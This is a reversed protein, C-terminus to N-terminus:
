VKGNDLEFVLVEDREDTVECAANFSPKRGRLELRGQGIIKGSVPYAKTGCRRSFTTAEGSWVDGSRTGKFLVSGAEIGLGSLESRPRDYHLAVKDGTTQLRMVSGNHKLSAGGDFTAPAVASPKGRAVASSTSSTDTKAQKVDGSQTSEREKKQADARDSDQQRKREADAQAQDRRQRDTAAQQDEKLMQAQLAKAQEDRQRQAALEAKAQEDKQRQAALEAKAREDKQRQAALEANAQEDKRRQAELAAQAQQEKVRQAEREKQLAIQAKAADEDRKKQAEQAKYDQNAKQPPSTSGMCEGNKM